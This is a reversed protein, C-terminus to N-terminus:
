DKKTAAKPFFTAVICILVIVIGLALYIVAQTFNGGSFAINNIKDNIVQACGKVLFGFMVSYCLSNILAMFDFNIFMAAIGCAIGLVGPIIIDIGFRTNGALGTWILGLILLIITLPIAATTLITRIDKDKIFRM